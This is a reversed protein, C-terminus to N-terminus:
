RDSEIGALLIVPPQRYIIKMCNWCQWGDEHAIFFRGGCGPRPCIAPPTPINKTKPLISKVRRM